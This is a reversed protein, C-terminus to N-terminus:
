GERREDAERRREKAEDCVEAEKEGDEEERCAGGRGMLKKNTKRRTRTRRRKRRNRGRGFWLM